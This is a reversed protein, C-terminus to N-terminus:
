GFRLRVFESPKPRLVAMKHVLSELAAAEQVIKDCLEPLMFLHEADFQPGQADEKFFGRLNPNDRLIRGAYERLAWPTAMALHIIPLKPRIQRAEVNKSADGEGSAPFRREIPRGLIAGLNELRAEELELVHRVRGVVSQRRRASKVQPSADYERGAELIFPLAVHGALMADEAEQRVQLSLTEASTRDFMLHEPVAMQPQGFWEADTGLGDQFHQRCLALIRDRWGREKGCRPPSALTALLACAKMYAPAEPSLTVLAGTESWEINLYATM